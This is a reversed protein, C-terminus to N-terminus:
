RSELPQAHVAGSERPLNRGMACACSLAALHWRCLMTSVVAHCAAADDRSDSFKPVSGSVYKLLVGRGDSAQVDMHCHLSNLLDPMYARIGEPVGARSYKCWDEEKHQLHLVGTDADYCSTKPEKPWGSGTWSRQSGEM